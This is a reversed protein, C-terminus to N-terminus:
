IQVRLVKIQDISPLNWPKQKSYQSRNQPVHQFRNDLYPSKLIKRMIHSSPTM